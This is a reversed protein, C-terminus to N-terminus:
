LLCRLFLKGALCMMALQLSGSWSTLAVSENYRELLIKHIIGTGYNNAGIICCNCFSALLIVYSWGKDLDKFESVGDEAAIRSASTRDRDEREIIYVASNRM